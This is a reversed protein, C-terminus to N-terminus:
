EADEEGTDLGIYEPINDPLVIENDKDYPNNEIDLNKKNGDKDTMTSHYEKEKGKYEVYDRIDSLDVGDNKEWPQTDLYEDQWYVARSGYIKLPNEYKMGTKIKVTISDGAAKGIKAYQKVKDGKKLDKVPKIDSYYFTTTKGVRIVVSEETVRIIKGNFQAYVPDNEATYCTISNKEMSKIRLDKKLFTKTELGAKGISSSSSCLKKIFDAYQKQKEITGLDYKELEKAIVPDEQTGNIVRYLRDYETLDSAIDWAFEGAKFKQMYSEYYKNKEDIQRALVEAEKDEISGSGIEDVLSNYTEEKRCQSIIREATKEWESGEVRELGMVERLDNETEAHVETGCLFVTLALVALYLVKRM